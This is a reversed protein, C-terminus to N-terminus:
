RQVKTSLTHWFSTTFHLPVKSNGNWKQVINVQCMNKSNYSGPIRLLCNKLSVTHYHASDTKDNSLYWEAFRLFLKSSEKFKDFEPMQELIAHSETPIYM